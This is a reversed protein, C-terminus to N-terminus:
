QGSSKQEPKRTDFLIAALPDNNPPLDSKGAPFKNFSLLFAVLDASQQPTLTGPEDQPM